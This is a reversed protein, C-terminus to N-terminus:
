CSFLAECMFSTIEERHKGLETQEKSIVSNQNKLASKNLDSSSM